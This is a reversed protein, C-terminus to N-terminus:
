KSHEFVLDLVAKFTNQTDGATPSFVVPNHKEILEIPNVLEWYTANPPTHGTHNAICRYTYDGLLVFNGVVYAKSNDWAGVFTKGISFADAMASVLDVLADIASASTRDVKQQVVISYGYVGAESGRSEESWDQIGIAVDVRLAGGSATAPDMEKLGYATWYSRRATFTFQGAWLQSSLNLDDVIAQAIERVRAPKVAM